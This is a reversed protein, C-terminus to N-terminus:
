EIKLETLYGQGMLRFNDLPNELLIPDIEANDIAYILADYLSNGQKLKSWENESFKSFESRAATSKEGWWGQYFQTSSSSMQLALSMDNHYYALLGQSGGPGEILRNDGTLKLRGTL